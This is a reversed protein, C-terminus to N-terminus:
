CFCFVNFISLYDFQIFIQLILIDYAHYMGIFNSASYFLEESDAVTSFIIRRNKSYFDFWQPVDEFLVRQEIKLM